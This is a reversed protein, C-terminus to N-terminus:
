IEKIVFRRSNQIPVQFQKVLEQHNQALSKTDLRYSPKPTKWSALTQGEFNLLEADQMQEMIKQKIESAECEFQKIQSNLGKLKQILEYSALSAELVKNPKSKKFLRNLDGESQTPPPKDGLVYSQWFEKARNLIIQELEEDRSITYIRFDTNGFLVAVDTQNINTLMMYWVCQVLYSLPVEDSGAEGWENATFPNATKCELIRKANIRGLDDILSVEDGLVFRDIHGHMYEYEPHIIAHDYKELKSQTSRSYESAVFEEAFNGFRMAINVTQNVEKGTKEMWVDVATKFKSLGLIAGIDSGGLSKRRFLAFDQNSLM